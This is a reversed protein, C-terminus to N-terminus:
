TAEPCAPSVPSRRGRLAAALAPRAFTGLGVGLRDFLITGEPTLADVLDAAQHRDTTTGITEGNVMLRWHGDLNRRHASVDHDLVVVAHASAAVATPAAAIPAVVVAVAATATATARCTFCTTLFPENLSRCADCLWFTDSAVTGHRARLAAGLGRGSRRVIAPLIRRIAVIVASAVFMLGLVLILRGVTIDTAAIMTGAVAPLVILSM